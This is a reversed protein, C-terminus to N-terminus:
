GKDKMRAKPSCTICPLDIDTTNRHVFGSGNCVSCKSLSKNLIAISKEVDEKDKKLNHKEKFYDGAYDSWEISTELTEIIFEIEQKTM